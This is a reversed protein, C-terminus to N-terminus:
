GAEQGESQRGGLLGTRLRRVAPEREQVRLAQLAAACAVLSLTRTCWLIRDCNIKTYVLSCYLEACLAHCPRCHSTALPRDCQLRYACAARSYIRSSGFQESTRVSRTCCTWSSTGFAALRCALHLVTCTCTVRISHVRPVYGWIELFSTKNAEKLLGVYEYTSTSYALLTCNYEVACM